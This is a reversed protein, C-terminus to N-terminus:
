AALPEAIIFLRGWSDEGPRAICTQLILSGPRRYIESYLDSATLQRSSELEVYDSYPSDPQLAQYQLIATIVFAQTHGAGFVLQIQQGQQLLPFQFGALYNHALLGTSGFQSAKAFQTVVGPEESVFAPSGAPQQIVPLSFLKPVFIGQLQDPAATAFTAAFTKLAADSPSAALGLNSSQPLNGEVKVYGVGFEQGALARAQVTQPVAIALVATTLASIRLLRLFCPM